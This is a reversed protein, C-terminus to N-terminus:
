FRFTLQAGVSALNGSTRLTPFGPNAPDAGPGKRDERPDLYTFSAYVDFTVPKPFAYGFAGVATLGWGVSFVHRDADAINTAGDQEPVPSPIYAYGGRFAHRRRGGEEEMAYEVGLRPVFTDRFDPDIKSSGFEPVGPLFTGLNGLSVETYPSPFESFDRWALDLAVTLREEWTYAVGVGIEQPTFLGDGRVALSIPFGLDLLAPLDFDLQTRQRWVAGVRLGRLSDSVGEGNLIAGAILYFRAELSLDGLIEFGGETGVAGALRNPSDFPQVFIGIGASLADHLKVGAGVHLWLRNLQQDYLALTPEEPRPFDIEVLTFDQANIFASTALTLRERMVGGLPL